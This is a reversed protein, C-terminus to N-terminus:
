IMMKKLFYVVSVSVKVCCFFLLITYVIAFIAHCFVSKLDANLVCVIFLSRINVEISM